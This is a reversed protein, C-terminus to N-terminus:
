RTVKPEYLRVEGGSDSSGLSTDLKGANVASTLASRVLAQQRRRTAYKVNWPCRGHQLVYDLLYTASLRPEKGSVHAYCDNVHAVLLDILLQPEATLSSPQFTNNM